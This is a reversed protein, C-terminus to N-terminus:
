QTHLVILIKITFRDQLVNGESLVNCYVRSWARSVKELQTHGWLAFTEYSFAESIQSQGGANARKCMGQAEESLSEFCFAETKVLDIYVIERGNGDLFNYLLDENNLELKVGPQHKSRESYNGSM